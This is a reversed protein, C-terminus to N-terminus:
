EPASTEGSKIWVETRTTASPGTRVVVYRGPLLTLSAGAPVARSWLTQDADSEIDECLVSYEFADDTSVVLTGATPLTVASERRVGPEDISRTGLPTVGHHRSVLFLDYTGMPLPPTAARTADAFQGVFPGVADIPVTASAITRPVACLAVRADHWEEAHEVSLITVSLADDCVVRLSTTGSDVHPVRAIEVGGGPPRASLDFHGREPLTLQFAGDEDSHAWASATSAEATAVVVWGALPRSALDVVTGSISPSARAAPNWALRDGRAGFLLESAVVDGAGIALRMQLPGPPLGDVTFTDDDAVRTVHRGRESHVTVTAARGPREGTWQVRGAVVVGRELVVDASAAERGAAVDVGASQWGSARVSVRLPLDSLDRLSARGAVDTTGSQRATWEAAERDTLERDPPDGKSAVVVRAEAIPHGDAGRVHVVIPRGRYLLRLDVREGDVFQRRSLPTVAFSSTAGHRARVSRTAMPVDAAYEGDADSTGVVREHDAAVALVTAGVVPAGDLHEVRGVVRVTTPADEDAESQEALSAGIRHVRTDPRPPEPTRTRTTRVAESQVDRGSAPSDRQAVRAASFVVLFAITFILAGVVRDRVAVPASRAVPPM